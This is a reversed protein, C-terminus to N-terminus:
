VRRIRRITMLAYVVVTIPVASWTIMKQITEIEASYLAFYLVPLYRLLSTISFTVLLIRIFSSRVFPIFAFSWLLYWPHFQRSLDTFLPVFLLTAALDAWWKRVIDALKAIVKPTSILSLLSGLSFAGWIPLLLATSRKVQSSLYLLAFSLGIRAAVSIIKKGPPLVLLLAAFALVMMWIDNHASSLSEILVLPSAFFLGLRFAMQKPSLFLRRYLARELLFLLILSLFAYLKFAIFVLLFKGVGLIFPVLSLATWAYGYTTPFFVNRMFRVWDDKGSFDIASTTHPDLHYQVVLKADFIYNFLDYSLAPNSFVFFLLFVAILGSAVMLKGQRLRNLIYFYLGFLSVILILFIIVVSVRNTSFSWMLNQFLVFPAKSSYLLERDTLIFSWLFFGLAPLLFLLSRLRRM